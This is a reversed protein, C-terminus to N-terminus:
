VLKCRPPIGEGSYFGGPALGARATTMQGSIDCSIAMGGEGPGNPSGPPSESPIDRGM